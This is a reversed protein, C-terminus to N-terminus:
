LTEAFWEKFAGVTGARDRRYLYEAHTGEDVMILRKRGRAKEYLRQSHWPLILWDKRGHVFLVPAKIDQIVDIPRTKRLWLKGPRVGKGIRGEQFVNYIINESIGMKWFHKDIKGFETPPSVLILSTITDTRSAAIISSAAGLSFGVIGVSSYHTRAYALVAEVDMYEKATWDFFGESQGHGRFDMVIVDYSDLLDDAMDKFLVAKKSNYFGHALIVAKAHGNQYHDFYIKKGDKTSVYASTLAQAKM